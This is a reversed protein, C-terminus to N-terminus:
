LPRAGLALREIEIQGLTFNQELGVAGDVAHHRRFPLIRVFQDFLEHDEGVNGSGLRKFFRAHRQDVAHMIFRRDFFEM